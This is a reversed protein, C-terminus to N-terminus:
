ALPAQPVAVLDLGQQSHIWAHSLSEGAEERCGVHEGVQGFEGTGKGNLSKFWAQASVSAGRQDAFAGDVEVLGAAAVPVTEWNM